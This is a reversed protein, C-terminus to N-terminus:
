KSHSRKKCNDFHWVVMNGPDGIKGCHPCTKKIRQRARESLKKKTEESRIIGKLANSVKKKTEESPPPKSKAYESLKRCHEESRPPKPQRMRQKTEESLKGSKENTETYRCNLGCEVAKYLEQYHRELENLENIKCEHLIEWSHSGWGYKQISKYLRTQSKNGGRAYNKHREDLDVSQGIYIKGNPNTIKYIGVM